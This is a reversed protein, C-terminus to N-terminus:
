NGESPFQGACTAIARAKYEEYQEANILGDNLLQLIQEVRTGRCAVFEANSAGAASGSGGPQSARYHLASLGILCMVALLGAIAKAGMTDLFSTTEVATTM